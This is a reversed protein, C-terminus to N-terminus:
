YIYGSIVDLQDAMETGYRRLRETVDMTPDRVGVVRVAGPKGPLQIPERPVGLGIAMEPCVPVFDFYEILTGSIFADRKHGGDHRVAEGLLCSSIGLQVTLTTSTSM